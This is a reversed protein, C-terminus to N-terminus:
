SPLELGETAFARQVAPRAALRRAHATWHSFDHAMDFALMPGRGWTWYVLL